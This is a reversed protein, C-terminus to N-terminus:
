RKRRWVQLNEALPKPQTYDSVLCILSSVGLLTFLLGMSHAYCCPFSSYLLLSAIIILPMTSGHM